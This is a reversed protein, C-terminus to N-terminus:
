NRVCTRYPWVVTLFLGCDEIWSSAVIFGEWRDRLVWGLVSESGDEMWIVDRQPLFGTSRGTAVSQLKSLLVESDGEIEVWYFGLDRAFLWNRIVIETSTARLDAFFGADFNVRAWPDVLNKWLSLGVTVIDERPFLLSDLEGQIVPCDRCVHLITELGSGYHPCM